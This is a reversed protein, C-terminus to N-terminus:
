PIIIRFFRATFESPLEDEDVGCGVVEIVRLAVSNLSVEFDGVM